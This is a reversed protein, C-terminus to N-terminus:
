SEIPKGRYEKCYEKKYYANNSLEKYFNILFREGHYYTLMEVKDEPDPIQDNLINKMIMYEWYTLYTPEIRDKDYTNDWKRLMSMYQHLQKTNHHHLNAEDNQIHTIIAQVMNKLKVEAFLDLKDDYINMADEITIKGKNRILEQILVTIRYGRTMYGSYVSVPYQVNPSSVPNNAAVIFGKSPDLLYPKEEASLFGLWENDDTWGRTIREGLKHSKRKPHSGTPAYAIHDKVDAVVM